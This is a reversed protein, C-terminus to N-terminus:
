SAPAIMATDATPALPRSSAWSTASWRSAVRVRPRAQPRRPRRDHARRVRPLDHLRAVLDQAHAEASDPEDGRGAEDTQPRRFAGEQEFPEDSSGRGEAQAGRVIDQTSAKKKNRTRFGLTPKGWPTVPHSGKNKGEGGGHPHDVPNMVTGRVTPRKGKWRSRGAKGGSEIEHTVNGLQGVTARCIEDVRRMEGSPLRLLAKGARRPSWSHRAAPRACWRPARAPGCSSTTCRPAPRCRRCRCRTAPGSTSAPARSSPRASGCGCRRWSTASRATPTTCCRSGPRGTPTTSSRTCRPRTRRGQPAQLRDAPLPAQPRRGPPPDHHPRQQQARREQAPPALLTKEPETKTIEAFDSVSMFRRGAINAQIQKVAM